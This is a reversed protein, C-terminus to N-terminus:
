AAMCNESAKKVSVQLRVTWGDDHAGMAHPEGDGNGVRSFLARSKGNDSRQLLGHEVLIPLVWRREHYMSFIKKKM